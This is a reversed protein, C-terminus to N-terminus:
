NIIVNLKKIIKWKGDAGRQASGESEIKVNQANNLVQKDCGELFSPNAIVRPYAGPYVTFSVTQASQRRLEFVSDENPTGRLRNFYGDIIADSYLVSASTETTKNTEPIVVKQENKATGAVEFMQEDITKQEYARIKQKYREIEQEYLKIKAEYAINDQVLKNNEKELKRVYSRLEKESEEMDSNANSKKSDLSTKANKLSSIVNRIFKITHEIIKKATEFFKEPYKYVLFSLIAGIIIILLWGSWSGNSKSATHKNDIDEGIRRENTISEAGNSNINNVYEELDTKIGERCRWLLRHDQTVDNFESLILEVIADDNLDSISKNKLKNIKAARAQPTISGEADPRLAQTIIKFDPINQLNNLSCNKLAKLKDALARQQEDKSLNADVYAVMYKCNVYDVLKIYVTKDINQAFSVAGCLIVAMFIITTRKLM